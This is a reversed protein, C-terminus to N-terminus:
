QIWRKIEAANKTTEPDFESRPRAFLARHIDNAIRDKTQQETEFRLLWQIRGPSRQPLDVRKEDEWNIEARDAESLHALPDAEVDVAIFKGDPMLTGRLKNSEDFLKRGNPASVVPLSPVVAPEPEYKVITPESSEAIVVPEPEPEPTSAVVPEPARVAAVPTTAPVATVPAPKVKAGPTVMGILEDLFSVM